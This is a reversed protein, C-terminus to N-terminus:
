TTTEVQNGWVKWGEPAAGRRFLELRPGYPYMTEILERFFEPKESHRGRKISVVSDHLQESDPVCSGRTCILLHEHRVSVYHGVNHAIKDWVFASKYEFGWAKIVDHAEYLLPATVWLYLVADDLCKEDVPLACLDAINMTPYHASAAGFEASDQRTDRYQWPPDAYIVRYKGAPLDGPNAFKRQTARKNLQSKAKSITIEGSRIQAILDPAEKQIKKADAVYQRNVGLLRLLKQTQEDEIM